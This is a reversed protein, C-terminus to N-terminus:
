VPKFQLSLDCPIIRPVQRRVTHRGKHYIQLLHLYTKNTNHSLFCSQSTTSDTRDKLNWLINNYKPRLELTAFFVFTVNWM